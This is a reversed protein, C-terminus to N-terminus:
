YFSQNIIYGENMCGEIKERKSCVGEFKKMYRELFFMWCCSVVGTFEVEDGLYILLHVQFEMFSTPSEKKFM